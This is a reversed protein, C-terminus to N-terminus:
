TQGYRHAQACGLRKSLDGSLFLFRVPEKHQTGTLQM